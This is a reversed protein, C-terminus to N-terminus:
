ILDALRRVEEATGEFGEPLPEYGGDKLRKAIMEDTWGRDRLENIHAALLREDGTIQSLTRKGPRASGGRVEATLRQTQRILEKRVKEIMQQDAQDPEPHLVEVLEDVDWGALAYAAVLAPLPEPPHDTPVGFPADFPGAECRYPIEHFAAEPDLHYEECAARWEDLTMEPFEADPNLGYEKCVERWEDPEMERRMLRTYTRVSEGSEAAVFSSGVGHGVRYERRQALRGALLGLRALADEFFPVARAADPLETKQGRPKSAKKKPTPALCAHAKAPRM